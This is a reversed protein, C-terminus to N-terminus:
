KHWIEERVQDRGLENIRDHLRKQSRDWYKLEKATWERDNGLNMIEEYLYKFYDLINVDVWRWLHKM